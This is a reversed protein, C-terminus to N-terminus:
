VRKCALVCVHAFARVCVCVCGGKFENEGFGDLIVVLVPGEPKPITPHPALAFEPDVGNAPSEAVAAAPAPVPAVGVETAGSSCCNM